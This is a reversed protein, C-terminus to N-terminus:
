LIGFNGSPVVGKARNVQNLRNMDKERIQQVTSLKDKSFIKEEDFISNFLVSNESVLSKKRHKKKKGLKLKDFNLEFGNGGHDLSSRKLGGGNETM